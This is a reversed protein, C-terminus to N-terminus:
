KDDKGNLKNKKSSIKTDIVMIYFAAIVISIMMAQPLITLTFFLGIIKIIGDVTLSKRFHKTDDLLEKNDKNPEDIVKNIAINSFTLLIVVIGYLAQIISENFYESVLSTTYPILSAFFLLIMNWLIVKSTVKEVKSWIQYMGFWLAGLWFFSLTYALISEKLSIIAGLTPEDPKPLELVLITMIIALVADTFAVLREKNM